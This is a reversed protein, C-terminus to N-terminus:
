KELQKRWWERWAKIATSKEAESASVTPGFDQKTLDKLAAYAAREVTKERDNLLDILKGVHSMDEKLACALAAARRLEANDDGMYTALFSSKLKSLREALAERAKNRKDGDLQDIAYALAQTHEAGRTDRLKALADDFQSGSAKVFEGVLKAVVPDVDAPLPKPGSKDKEGGGANASDEFPSRVKKISGPKFDGAGGRLISEGRQGRLSNSLDKALDARRLFLLAFCTDAGYQGHVGQWSGNTEQDAILFNAGWDYWDKGGIKQIGYAVATRELSWLFYYVRGMTMLNKTPMQFGGRPQQGGAQGGGPFGQPFQGNPPQFGAGPGGQGKQPANKDDKPVPAGAGPAQAGGGPAGKPAGEPQRGGAGPRAGAPPQAGGLGGRPPQPPPAATAPAAAMAASLYKLAADIAPDKAIDRVTPQKKGGAGGGAGKAKPGGARMASEGAAAHHMALGILGACTMASTSAANPDFVPGGGAAGNVPMYGWGGDGNQSNRFRKEVRDLADQVPVGYRRGTWLALVAFQTNSNDPRQVIVSDAGTVGGGGGAPEAALPGRKLVNEIEAKSDPSIETSARREETTPASREKKEVRKMVAEKLRAKQNGILDTGSRYTWGGTAYQGSLIRASLAEILAVDVDEGLRDLFLVGLALSYTRDEGIITERVYAAARQISNDTPPIGCELLTLAALSTMGSEQYPWSGDDRQLGQVFKVGREIAQKIRADDATPSNPVVALLVTLVGALVIGLRM